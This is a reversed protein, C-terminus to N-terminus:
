EFLRIKDENEKVYIIHDEYTEAFIKNNITVIHPMEDGYKKHEYFRVNKEYKVITNVLYYKEQWNKMKECLGFGSDICCQCLKKADDLTATIKKNGAGTGYNIYYKKM